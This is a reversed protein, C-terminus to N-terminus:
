ADLAGLLAFDSTQIMVVGRLGAMYACQRAHLQDIRRRQGEIHQPFHRVLDNCDYRRHHPLTVRGM